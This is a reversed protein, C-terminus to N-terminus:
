QRIISGSPETDAPLISPASKARSQKGGRRRKDLVTESVLATSLVQSLDSVPVFHIAKKVVPDVDYLDSVNDQPILVTKMGERYAAMSKERLGGIPLVNGHLTIEGTMAVDGRVPRGSLCSILATTLTVGASPGDKPVAGEPAHIHIDVTKLKAADIGYEKAHVRTYTLAM